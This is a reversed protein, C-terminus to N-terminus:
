SNYCEREFVKLVNETSELSVTAQSEGVGERSLLESEAIDTQGPSGTEVKKSSM